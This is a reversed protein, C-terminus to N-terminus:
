LCLWGKLTLGAGSRGADAELGLIVACCEMHADCSCRVDEPARDIGRSTGRWSSRRLPRSSLPPRSGPSAAEGVCGAQADSEAASAGGSGEGAALSRGEGARDGSAGGGRSSAPDRQSGSASGGGGSAEAQGSSTEQPLRTSLVALKLARRVRWTCPGGPSAATEEGLTGCVAYHQNLDGYLVVVDGPMAPGRSPRLKHPEVQVRAHTADMGRLRCPPLLSKERKPWGLAQNAALYKLLAQVRVKCLSPLARGTAM